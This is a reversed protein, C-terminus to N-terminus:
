DVFTPTNGPQQSETFSKAFVNLTRLTLEKNIRRLVNNLRIFNTGFLDWKIFEQYMCHPYRRPHGKGICRGAIDGSMLARYIGEGTMPFAGVGADGVFLIKKYMLPPQLGLPVLGGTVYNVTGTINQEQKFDELLQKLNYGFDGMLGIGVNVEKKEPDRPFIWFYGSYSTFFIKITDGTFCNANEVTQQYSTGKIGRNFGLERKITSPCGSADIIYDADLDHFSRIKDNTQIVAGHKEADRALQCIFEQRNLICAVGPPRGASYRNDGVAVDGTLIHNFISKEAPKWQRWEREVTHAEGCRRGEHNYGIEKYKEHVIVEISPNHKKLSIASTLGALSGGVIDVQM